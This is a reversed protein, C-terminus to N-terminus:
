KAKVQLDSLQHEIHQAQQKLMTSLTTIHMLDDETAEGDDSIKATLAELAAATSRNQRVCDIIHKRQVQSFSVIQSHTSSTQVPTLNAESM